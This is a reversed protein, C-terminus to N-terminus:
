CSMGGATSLACSGTEYSIESRDTGQVEFAIGDLKRKLAEHSSAFVMKDKVKADDPSWSIFGLKKRPGEGPKEFEFDYVAWRCQAAPFEAVFAGYDSADSTKDVVIESLDDNLRFFLYKFRKGLKLQQYTATCDDSVNVGSAM